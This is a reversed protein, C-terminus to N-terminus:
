AILSKHLVRHTVGMRLFCVITLFLKMNKNFFINYQNSWIVEFLKNM